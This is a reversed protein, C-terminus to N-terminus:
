ALYSQGLCTKFTLKPRVLFMFHWELLTPTPSLWRATREKLKRLCVQWEALTHSGLRTCLVRLFGVNSFLLARFTWKINCMFQLSIHSVWQHNFCTGHDGLCRLRECRGLSSLGCIRSDNDVQALNCSDHSSSRFRLIFVHRRLPHESM